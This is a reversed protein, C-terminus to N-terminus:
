TARITLKLQTVEFIRPEKTESNSLAEHCLTRPPGRAGERQNAAGTFFYVWYKHGRMRLTMLKIAKAAYYYYYMCQVYQMTCM